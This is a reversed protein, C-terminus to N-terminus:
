RDLLILERKSIDDIYEYYDSDYLDRAMEFYRKSKEPDINLFMLGMRMAAESAFYYDEDEGGIIVIKYANEAFQINGNIEEYRAKLLTYDLQYHLPKNEDFDISYFLEAFREYYGGELLLKCKTLVIDQTYDLNCDYITERDRETVDEGEDCAKEKYYKFQKTDGKVLYTLGLKFNIERLYNEKETLELFRKLHYASKDDLKRLLIKGMMYDYPLFPIEAEEPKFKSMSELAIENHGSRYATNSYFYKIIRKNLVLSDKNRIFEFANAPEKNLKYSLMIYLVAEANLGKKDKVSQYYENLLRFGKESDGKVGFAGAAWQVFSPLNSIAVNFFGDLKKNSKFEPFQKINQYIKKYSKYGKRVGGIREGYLVGYAAMHLYMESECMLYYPSEMDKEDMFERREEFDSAFKEYMEPSGNIALVYADCMQDLYHAYYNKPNQDLEGAVIKKATNIRLDILADWAELCQDTVQYQAHGAYSLIAIIFLILFNKKLM